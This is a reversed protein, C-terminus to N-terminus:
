TNNDLIKELDAVRKVLSPNDHIESIEKTM